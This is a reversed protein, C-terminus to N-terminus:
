LIEGRYGQLSLIGIWRRSWCTVVAIRESRYEVTPVVTAGVVYGLYDRQKEELDVVIEVAVGLVRRRVGEM